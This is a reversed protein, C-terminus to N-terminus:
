YSRFNLVIVIRDILDEINIENNRKNNYIIDFELDKLGEKLKENEIQSRDERNAEDSDIKMLIYNYEDTDISNIADLYGEKNVIVINIINKNELDDEDLISDIPTGYFNNDFYIRAFLDNTIKKYEEEDIFNYGNDTEDRKQRTTYQLPKNFFFFSDSENNHKVLEKAIYDKGSGSEGCIFLIQKM